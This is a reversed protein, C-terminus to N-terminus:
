QNIKLWPNNRIQKKILSLLPAHFFAPQEEQLLRGKDFTFTQSLGSIPHTEILQVTSAFYWDRVPLSLLAKQTRLNHSSAEERGVCAGMCQGNIEQICPTGSPPTPHLLGLSNPCLGHNQVCEALAKKAAKANPFYGYSTQQESGNTYPIIKAQLMGQENAQLTVTSGSAQPLSIGNKEHWLALLIHASIIGTTPHFSISAIQNLTEEDLLNLYTCCDRFLRECPQASLINHEKDLLVFYGFDDPMQNITQRISPPLETPPLKPTLLTNFQKQVTDLGKETLARELFYVIAQADPLARHRSPLTIQMRDIISDLNHKKYEPYLKRSLKVSCLIHNHLYIQECLFANRLFGYDFQVNHAILIADQLYPLIEATVRAFIPQSQVMNNNIGTLKEVFPPIPKQPNILWSHESIQGNEIVVLAIETLRDQYLDGGTSEVDVVVVKQEIAAFFNLVHNFTTHSMYKDTHFM